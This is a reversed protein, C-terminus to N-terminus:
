SRCDARHSMGTSLNANAHTQIRWQHSTSTTLTPWSGPGVESLVHMRASVNTNITIFRSYFTGPQTICIHSTCIRARKVAPLYSHLHSPRQFIPFPESTTKSTGIPQQIARQRSERSPPLPLSLFIVVRRASLGSSFSSGLFDRTRFDRHLGSLIGNPNVIEAHRRSCYPVSRTFACFLSCTVVARIRALANKAKAVLYVSRVARIISRKLRGNCRPILLPQMYEMHKDKKKVAIRIM